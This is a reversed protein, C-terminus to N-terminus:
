AIPPTATFPWRCSRWGLVVDVDLPLLSIMQEDTARELWDAFPLPLELRRRAHLVQSEWLSIASLALARAEALADLGTREAGTLPSDPKGQVSL